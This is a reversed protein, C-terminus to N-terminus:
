KNFPSLHIENKLIRVEYNSLFDQGLLGQNFGRQEPILINLRHITAEQLALSDLYCVGFQVTRGDAVSGWCREITALNMIKQIEPTILSRSAGTDVIFEFTYRNNLVAEVVASGRDHIFYKIPIIIIKPKVQEQNSLALQLVKIKEQATQHQQYDGQNLFLMAAKQYAKLADQYNELNEQLEGNALYLNGNQPDIALGNAYDKFAADYEELKVKANGRQLHYDVNTKDQKLLETFDEIAGYNDGLHIRAIARQYQWKKEQPELQVAAALDQIAMKTEGLLAAIWGRRCLAEANNPEINLLWNLDALAGQYNGGEIKAIANKLYDKTAEYNSSPHNYNEKILTEVLDFCYRANKQDQQHLYYRSAKKYADIAASIQQQQQYAHGMLRYAVPSKNDLDIALKTNKIVEPFKRQELYILAINLYVKVAPKLYIVQTYDAIASSFDKLKEKIRARQYYAEIFTTDKALVHNLIVLAEQYKSQAILDLAQYYNSEM